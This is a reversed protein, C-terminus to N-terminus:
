FTLWDWLVGILFLGGTVFLFVGVSFTNNLIFVWMTPAIIIFGTIFMIISLIFFILFAIAEKDHM